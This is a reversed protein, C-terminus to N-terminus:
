AQGQRLANILLNPVEDRNELTLEYLEVGSREKIENFCPHSESSITGILPISSTLVDMVALQFLESSWQMPAIEDIIVFDKSALANLISNLGITELANLIVGYKGVKHKSEHAVHALMGNQGDLTVLTFGYREGTSDLLAETVFGGCNKIGVREIVQKLATTKGVMPVGTLLYARCPKDKDM